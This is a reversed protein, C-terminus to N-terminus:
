VCKSTEFKAIKQSNKKASRAVQVRFFRGVKTSLIPKLSIFYLSLEDLSHKKKRDCHMRRLYTSWFHFKKAHNM